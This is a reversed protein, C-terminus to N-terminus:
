PLMAFQRGELLLLATSRLQGRRGGRGAYVVLADNPMVVSDLATRRSGLIPGKSRASLVRHHDSRQKKQHGFSPKPGSLAYPVPLHLVLGSHAPSSRSIPPDSSCVKSVKVVM